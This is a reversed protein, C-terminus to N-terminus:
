LQVRSYKGKTRFRKFVLVKKRHAPARVAACPVAMAGCTSQQVWACRSLAAILSNSLALTIAACLPAVWSTPRWGQPSRRLQCQHQQAHSRWQGLRDGEPNVLAALRCPSVGAKFSAHEGWSWAAAVAVGRGARFRERHNQLYGYTGRPSPARARRPPLARPGKKSTGM